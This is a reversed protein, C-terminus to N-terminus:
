KFTVHAGNTFFFFFIGRPEESELRLSSNSGSLSKKKCGFTPETESLLTVVSVSTSREKYNLSLTSSSTSRSEWFAQDTAEPPPWPITIM